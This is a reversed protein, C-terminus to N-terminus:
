GASVWPGPTMLDEASVKVAMDDRHLYTADSLIWIFKTLKPRLFSFPLTATELVTKVSLETSLASSHDNVKGQM